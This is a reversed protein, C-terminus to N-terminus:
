KWDLAADVGIYRYHWPEYAYGTVDEEGPPYSLAFGYTASNNRLWMGAPTAGFGETLDWGFEETGLDATTGLQHESYGPKASVRSAEEEGLQEVWYQYTTVQDQYSRYGSVVRIDYGAAAAADLMTILGSLAEPRLSASYGPAIYLGAVSTLNSPAYSDPLPHQKDVLQVLTVDDSPSDTTSPGPTPTPTISAPVGPIRLVQGVQLATPDDIGNASMLEGVTVNYLEAIVALTDGPQVTYTADPIPAATVTPGSVTATPTRTSLAPTTTNSSSLGGCAAILVFAAAIAAVIAAIIRSDM